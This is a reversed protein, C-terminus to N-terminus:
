AIVCDRVKNCDPNLVEVWFECPGIVNGEAPSVAARMADNVRLVSSAKGLKAPTGVVVCKLITEGQAKLEAMLEASTAFHRSHPTLPSAEVMTKLVAPLM